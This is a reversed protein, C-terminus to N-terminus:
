AKTQRLAISELIGVMALHIVLSSGGYSLFPLTIGIVPALGLNVAINVSVEIFILTLIGLVLMESFSDETKKLIKFGRYFFLGLALFMALIIVFGLEEAIVAFIFDTHASPLFRLQSQAGFGLGKGFIQGSGIAIISQFVNYGQGWPDLSPNIFTLIREKQYPALVFFWSGIAVLFFSIIFVFLHKWKVGSSFFLLLFWFSFLVLSSGLDPQFFILVACAFVLIFSQAILRFDKKLHMRESFFKALFIILALKVFEVPQFNIPGFNFWGKTGHFVTGVALVAILLLLAAFYFFKSLSRLYAYNTLSFVLFVAFGIFCFIVQKLFLGERGDGFGISYLAVLGLALLILISGFLAWDFRKLYFIPKEIM